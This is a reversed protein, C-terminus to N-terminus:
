PGTLVRIAVLACVCSTLKKAGSWVCTCWVGCVKVSQEVRHVSKKKKTDYGYKRGSITAFPCM